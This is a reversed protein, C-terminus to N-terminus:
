IFTDSIRFYSQTSLLLKRNFDGKGRGRVAPVLVLAGSYSTRTIERVFGVKTNWSLSPNEQEDCSSDSWENLDRTVLSSHTVSLPLLLFFFFRQQALYVLGFTFVNHITREHLHTQKSQIYSTIEREICKM